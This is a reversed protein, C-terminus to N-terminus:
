DGNVAGGNEMSRLVRRADRLALFTNRARNTTETVFARIEVPNASRWYGKPDAASTSLIACGDGGPSKRLEAILARATRDDCHWIKSLEKRSIANKRGFPIDLRNAKEM